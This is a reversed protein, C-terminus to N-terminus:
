AWARALLGVGARKPCVCSQCTPNAARIAALAARYRESARLRTLGERAEGVREHFFCPRVGGDADV